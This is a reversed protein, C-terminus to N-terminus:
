VSPKGDRRRWSWGAVALFLSLSILSVWKGIVFGSPLYELRLLHKGAALPVAQFCYDAPLIEYRAQASSLPRAKWNKSYPDTIFLIAPADLEVRVTAHDTSVDVVEIKGDSGAVPMPEPTQELFIENELPFNPEALGAFISDRNKEVRFKRVLQFRPLAGPVDTIEMGKATGEMVYRCRLLRFLRNAGTFQQISQRARDAPFGQTFFIFEAYRRLVAPDDGWIDQAGNSVALNPNLTNLVRYDGPNKDLFQKIEPILESDLHFTARSSGAFILIEVVALVAVLAAGRRSWLTLWLFVSLTFLTAAGWLLSQATQRAAQQVFAADSYAALVLYTQKTKEPAHFIASWWSPPNASGLSLAGLLMAVGLGVPLLRLWLPARKEKLLKDLGIGALVILFMSALFLFKATGRFKAFGPLWKFLVQFLPTYAGLALVILLVLMTVSFGPAFGDNPLARRDEVRWEETEINGRRASSQRARGNMAGYVALVLGTISCFFSMEWLFWRGWYPTAKADGFFGPAVLTFFNEPPFSFIASKGFSLGTSRITEDTANIGPLLQIASLAAGGMGIAVLAACIKLSYRRDTVTPFKSVRRGYVAAVAILQLASYLGAALATYYVYQPHGALIELAVAFMGVLCWRLRPEQFIEDIVLFILPAWTMTALNPLHGAYVHLWRTGCFMWLVGCMLSALWHLGRRTMWAYMLAGCLFTHLAVEANIAKGLPLILYIWNPPYLLAGQFMEFFPEGGYIHPNWLALNGRALEEFGFKRWHTFYRVLDLKENSIVSDGSTFLLDAFFGLTILLLFGLAALHRFRPHSHFREALSAFKNQASNEIAPKAPEPM